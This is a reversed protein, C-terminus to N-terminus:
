RTIVGVLHDGLLRAVTVHAAGVAAALIPAAGRQAHTVSPVLRGRVALRAIAHAALLATGCLAEGTRGPRHACAGRARLGQGQQVPPAAEVGAGRTEILVLTARALRAMARARCAVAGVGGVARCAIGDASGRRAAPDAVIRIFRPLALRAVAVALPARPRTRALARATHRM